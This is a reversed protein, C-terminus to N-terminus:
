AGLGPAATNRSEITRLLGALSLELHDRLVLILSDIAASSLKLQLGLLRRAEALMHNRARTLRRVVTTRQVQLAVAVRDGSMRAAYTLRLVMREDRPLSLFAERLAKRLTPQYEARLIALEPHDSLAQLTLEDVDDRDSYRDDHNRGLNLAIRVTAIRLWGSLPGAGAYQGIRRQPASGVVLRELVQQRVESAADSPLSLHRIWRPVEALLRDLAAVAGPLGAACAVALYFDEAHKVSSPDLAATRASFDDYSLDLAPWAARGSAWLDRVELSRGRETMALRYDADAARALGVKRRAAEVQAVEHARPTVPDLDGVELSDLHLLQLV